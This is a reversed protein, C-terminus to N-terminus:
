ASDRLERRLVRGAATKPLESRFEVVHPRQYGTLHTACHARVDAESPAHPAAASRVVVLKVAQGAQRDPVAVAACEAVGPLQGVVEEIQNPYVNFGGVQILDQKRDVMRLLGGPDQVVIDGTRFWGGPLMVKATEEPRQWYGAMVQPGRLALEGAMGAAVPQGQDDLVRVETGPLPLGIQGAPPSPGAAPAAGDLPNCIAWPSAEALGYGECLACGTRQLWRQATAPRVPAGGYTSLVLGSWDVRDADPHSALAQFMADVGPLAHFRQRALLRIMGNIDRANPVLLLCAGLHLGLLMVGSLAFIDHLPLACVWVPQEGPPVRRRAPLSWAACQRLNAVLNRHLLVAGKSAATTGVTYQLLAMDDPLPGSARRTHLPRGATRALRRGQALAAGFPVSGPIEFPPVRGHRRRVLQNLLHGKVRGLLDGLTCLLVQPPSPLGDLAQQLAAAATDIVVVWRAGCDKLQHVLERGCLQPNLNVVVGGAQWIALAAVLVQPVNPLMLAVREGRALGRHQLWTSLDGSLTDMEGYSFASGMYRCAPLAAHQRLSAQWVATLTAADAADAAPSGAARAAAVGATARGEAEATAGHTAGGPYAGFGDQQM